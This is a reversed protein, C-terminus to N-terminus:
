RADGTRMPPQKEEATIEYEGSKWVTNGMTYQEDAIAEAEEMSNAEVEIMGYSTEKVTFEYKM